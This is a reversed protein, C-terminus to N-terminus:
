AHHAIEEDDEEEGAGRGLGLKLELGLEELQRIARASSM